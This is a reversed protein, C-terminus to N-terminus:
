AVTSVSNRIREAVNEIFDKLTAEGMRHLLARDVVRGIVGLPPRYRANISLQTRSPGIPGLELDAELEPFLGEASAAKWKIPLVLRSPFHLPEGLSVEVRREIRVAGGFGVQALLREGETDADRALGPLWEGPSAMLAEEAIQYPMPLNVFCRIFM